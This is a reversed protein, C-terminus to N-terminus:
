CILQKLIIGSQEGFLPPIANGIQTYRPVELVRRKGGTTYKGKFLYSDPFSQIRAYERVTLIRPECYHIYDDPLTTITPAFDNANLPVITRKKIGYTAKFEDSITIGKRSVQLILAFREKVASTHKAFRHSDPTKNKSIGRRLFKQYKSKSVSYKGAEFSATDPSQLTGNSMLLDSIASQLPVSVELNKSILFSKKNERILNFFHKADIEKQACIETRIGVLIFRCRKQPIGFESFNILEPHVKYGLGTLKGIVYESYKKGKSKNKDFEMTFGKVNEFFLIKPQVLEIFKVYSDILKNRNDEENRKGATSFGQCPPGGTVMDVKGRLKLLNNEHNLLIENIDHSKQDLWKPWSFHNEQNILNYELTKFADESKEIAFLGKWGANHLGLSLGGCGAFLDIYTPKKMM